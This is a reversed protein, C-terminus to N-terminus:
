FNMSISDHLIYEKSNAEKAWYTKLEMWMSLMLLENMQISSFYNM